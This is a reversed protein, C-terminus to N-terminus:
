TLMGIRKPKGDIRETIDPRSESIARIYLKSGSIGVGGRFGPRVIKRETLRSVERSYSKWTSCTGSSDRTGARMVHTVRGEAVIENNKRISIDAQKVDYLKSGM